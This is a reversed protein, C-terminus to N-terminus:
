RPNWENRLLPDNFAIPRRYSTAECIQVASYTSVGPMLRPRALDPLLFKKTNLFDARAGAAGVGRRELCFHRQGGQTFVPRQGLQGLLELQVGVLDNVPLPLQERM